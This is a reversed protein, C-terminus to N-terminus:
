ESLSPKNKCLGYAAIGVMLKVVFDFPDSESTDVSRKHAIRAEVAFTTGM